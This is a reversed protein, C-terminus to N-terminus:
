KFAGSDKSEFFLDKEKWYNSIVASGCGRRFSELLAYSSFMIVVGNPIAKVIEFVSSALDKFMFDNNRNSYGLDFFAYNIGKQVLSVM